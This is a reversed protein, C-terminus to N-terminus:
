QQPRSPADCSKQNRKALAKAPAAILRFEAIAGKIIKRLDGFGQDGTCYTGAMTYSKDTEAVIWGISYMLGTDLARELEEATTWSDRSSHDYWAIGALRFPVPNQWKSKVPM